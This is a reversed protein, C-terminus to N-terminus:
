FLIFCFIEAYMIDMVVQQVQLIKGFTACRIRGDWSGRTVKRGSLHGYHVEGKNTVM